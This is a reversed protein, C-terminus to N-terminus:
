LLGITVYTALHIWLIFSAFIRDRIWLEIPALLWRPRSYSPLIEPSASYRKHNRPFPCRPLSGLFSPHSSLIGLSYWLLIGQSCLCGRLSVEPVALHGPISSKLERFRASNTCCVQLCFTTAIACRRSDFYAHSAPPWHCRGHIFRSRKVSISELSSYYRIVQWGLM